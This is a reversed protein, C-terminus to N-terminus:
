WSQQLRVPEVAVEAGDEFKFVLRVTYSAHLEGVMTGKKGPPGTQEATPSAPEYFVMEIVAVAGSGVQLVRPPKVEQVALPHGPARAARTKPYPISAYWRDSPEIIGSSGNPHPNAALEVTTDLVELKLSSLALDRDSNNRFAVTVLPLRLGQIQVRQQVNDSILSITKNRPPQAPGARSVPTPAALVPTQAAERTSKGPQAAQRGKEELYSKAFWGIVVIVLVALVCAVTRRPNERVAKSLKEFKELDM